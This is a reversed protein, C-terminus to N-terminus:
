PRLSALYAVIALMEGYTMGAVEPQMLAVSPGTRSGQRIDFLQRFLYSPSRGALMPAADTGKLDDGHCAVCPMREGKAAHVLENGRAISGPPVYAVFGSTDDRLETLALNEPVEIIREGIPETEGGPEAALMSVGSVATRPVTGTEVVRIWPQYRLASFYAAASAVEEPSAHSAVSVMLPPALMAPQASRREGNRFAETQQIIYAAPLGALSANEPRGQGSPYHCFGCANVEPKRGLAVIEPMPPHRDPRWDVAGFRDFIAGLSLSVTSGQVHRAVGDDTPPKPPGGRNLPYAWEPPQGAVAGTPAGDAAFAPAAVLLGIAVSLGAVCREVNDAM